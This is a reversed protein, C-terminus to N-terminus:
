SPWSISRTVNAVRVNAAKPMVSKSKVFAAPPNFLFKWAPSKMTSVSWMLKM